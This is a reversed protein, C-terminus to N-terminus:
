PKKVIMYAFQNVVRPMVEAMHFMIVERDRDQEILQTLNTLMDLVTQKSGPTLVLKHTRPNM